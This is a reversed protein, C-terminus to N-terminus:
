RRKRILRGYRLISTRYLRAAGWTCLPITVLLLVISLYLQTMPVGFPIRLMMAVPSTFPILSLAVSIGGSPANMMAPLLLITLLLPVTLPLSFLQSDTDNDSMAGAAAFLSAYLLYGFIFYFLFVPVIVGFDISAIGELLQPVDALEANQQMQATAEAGKTAVETVAHKQEAMRFLDANGAQIGVLAVGTLLVWLLFQTIGVLAIGVVKGMMLQFPKVSCVVVEIIRNSKEEVVGRMVQSGFMFIVVYILIALLLGLVMKVDAFSERGTEVDETRLNIKTASILAYEDDSIGHAQLLRNRLIRQLQRDGDYRVQSPPLDGKYYLCADTPIAESARRRVYLVADVEEDGDLQRLAYDLTAAYRYEVEDSSLFRCDSAEDGIGGFLGSEDAVLVVAKETPKMALWVPIAYLAALLIPVLITLVWFSPKRVRTGYERRIVLLIKRM